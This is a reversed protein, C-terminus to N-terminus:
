CNERINNYGIARGNSPVYIIIVFNDASRVVSSRVPTHWTNCVSSYAYPPEPYDGGRSRAPRNRFSGGTRNAIRERPRVITRLGVPSCTDRTRWTRARQRTSYEYVSICVCICKYSERRRNIDSKDSPTM